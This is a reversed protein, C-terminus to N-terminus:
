FCEQSYWGPIPTMPNQENYQKVIGPSTSSEWAFDGLKGGLLLLKEESQVVHHQSLKEESQVVQMCKQLWCLQYQNVGLGMAECVLVAIASM